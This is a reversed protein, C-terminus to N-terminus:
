KTRQFFGWPLRGKREMEPLLCFASGEHGRKRPLSLNGEATLMFFLCLVSLKVKMEDM